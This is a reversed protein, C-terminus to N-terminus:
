RMWEAVLKKCENWSTCETDKCFYRENSRFCSMKESQNQVTEEQRGELKHIKLFIIKASSGDKLKKALQM